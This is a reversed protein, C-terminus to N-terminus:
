SRSPQVDGIVFSDDMLGDGMTDPRIIRRRSELGVYEYVSERAPFAARVRRQMENLRGGAKWLGLQDWRTRMALRLSSRRRSLISSRAMYMAPYSGPASPIPTSPRGPPLSAPRIVPDHSVAPSPSQSKARKFFGKLCGAFWFAHLPFICAMIVSPGLSGDTVDQRNLALSVGLAVHLAIRTTFFSVAFLVDSRLRADLSAVALVFTPVEMIACLCFIHSWNMRVAYEIIFVYISHHVWGTLLNVKSRYHLVGMTLDAILYAQFFRSVGDTWPTSAPVKILDGRARTYELFMPLSCLSMVASSITTLIWSRQKATTCRHSLIYYLAILVLFSSLFAM